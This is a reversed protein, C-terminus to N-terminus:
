VRASTPADGCLGGTRPPRERRGRLDSRHAAVPIRGTQAKISAREADAAGSRRNRVTYAAPKWRKRTSRNGHALYHAMARHVMSGPYRRIPSTFHTYHEFGLGHHGINDTSYIAKAMTRITIGSSSTRRRPVGQDGPAASQHRASPRRTATVTLTHGFSKALSRLQEVKERIPRTTSATCSRICM